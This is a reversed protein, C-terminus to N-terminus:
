AAGLPAPRWRAFGIVAVKVLELSISSRKFCKGERSFLGSAPHQASTWGPEPPMLNSADRAGTNM